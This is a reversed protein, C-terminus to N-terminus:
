SWEYLWSVTLLCRSQEICRMHTYTLTTDPGQTDTKMLKSYHQICYQIQTHSRHKCTVLKSTPVRHEHVLYKWNLMLNCGSRQFPANRVNFSNHELHLFARVDELSNDMITM